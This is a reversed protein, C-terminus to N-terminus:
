IQWFYSSFFRMYFLDGVLNKVLQNVQLPVVQLIALNASSSRLEPAHSIKNRM